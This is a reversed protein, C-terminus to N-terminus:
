KKPVITFGNMLDEFDKKYEDYLSESTFAAVQLTGSEDSYLYYNYVFDIGQITGKIELFMVELGNVIRKESRTVRANNSTQQAHELVIHALNEVPVKIRESIIIAYADGKVHTLSYESGPILPKELISWKSDNYWVVYPIKAGSLTGKSDEPKTCAAGDIPKAEKKEEKAYEWKGTSHLIVKKKEGTFAEIDDSAKKTDSFSVSSILLSLTIAAIFIRM